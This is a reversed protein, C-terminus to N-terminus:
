IIEVQAFVFMVLHHRVKSWDNIKLPVYATWGVWFWLWSHRQAADRWIFCIFQFIRSEVLTICHANINPSRVTLWGSPHVFPKSHFVSHSPNCWSLSWSMLSIVGLHSALHSSHSLMCSPPMEPSPNHKMRCLIRTFIDFWILNWIKWNNKWTLKSKKITKGLDISGVRRIAFSCNCLSVIKWYSDNDLM